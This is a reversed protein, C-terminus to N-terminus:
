EKVCRVACGNARYNNNGAGYSGDSHFRLYKAYHNSYVSATWYCGLTTKSTMGGSTRARYGTLPYWISADSGYIGGNEIGYLTEDYVGKEGDGLAITWLNNSTGGDPVRWGAPCPDYITKPESSEKWRTNDALVTETFFWDLNTSNQMIFTTPNATAYEITGTFSDSTVASPWKITSKALTNSKISSTSLFPDKRGWQYLLGLALPDGPTACLAGLNRDMVIGAENFYTQEAPMDTLWIHWSWLINDEADKVCILANGETFEDSVQLVVYGDRYCVGDIIHFFDPTTATGFTEWVLAASDINDIAINSNGIVTRFKYLGGNSVIYCNASGEASLDKAGSASLNAEYSYPHEVNFQLIDSYRKEGKIQVCLCYNYKAGITLSSSTVSFSQDENFQSTSVSSAKYINFEEDASYYVTIQTYPLMDPEVELTGSFIASTINFQVPALTGPFQDAVADYRPINIIEGNALTLSVYKDGYSVDVFVDNCTSAPGLPDKEWTKGDTYSVYWYGDVIKLVPVVGDAGDIGNTPIIAIHWGNIGNHLNLWSVTAIVTQSKNTRDTKFIRSLSRM